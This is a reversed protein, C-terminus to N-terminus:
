CRWPARLGFRAIPDIYPTSSGGTPLSDLSITHQFGSMATDVQFAYYCATTNTGPPYLFLRAM